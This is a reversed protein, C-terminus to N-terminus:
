VSRRQLVLLVMAVVLLVFGLPMLALTLQTLVEPASGSGWKLLLMAAGSITSLVACVAGALSLWRIASAYPLVDKNEM